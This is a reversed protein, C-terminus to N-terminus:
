ITVPKPPIDFKYCSQWLIPCFLATVINNDYIMVTDIKNSCDQLLEPLEM